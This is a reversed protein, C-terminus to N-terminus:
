CGRRQEVWLSRDDATFLMNTDFGAQTRAMGAAGDCRGDVQSPVGCRERDRWGTPGVIIAEPMVSNILEVGLLAANLLIDNLKGRDAQFGRWPGREDEGYAEFSRAEDWEIWIGLHRHFNEALVTARLGLRALIPEIGPHLTEGPTPRRRGAPAIILVALGSRRAEIAAACGAPGAGLILLDWL